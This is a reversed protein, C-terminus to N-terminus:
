RCIIGDTEIKDFNYSFSGNVFLVDKIIDLRTSFQTKVSTGQESARGGDQM